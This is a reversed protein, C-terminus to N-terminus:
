QLLNQDVPIPVYSKTRCLPNARKGAQRRTRYGSQELRTETEQKQAGLSNILKALNRQRGERELQEINTSPPQNPANKATGQRLKVKETQTPWVKETKLRGSKGTQEEKGSAM